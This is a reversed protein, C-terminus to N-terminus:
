AAEADAVATAVRRVVDALLGAQAEV